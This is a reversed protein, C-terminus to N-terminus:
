ALAESEGPARRVTIAVTHDLRENRESMHVDKASVGPRAGSWRPIERGWVSM